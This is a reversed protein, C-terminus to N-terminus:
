EVKEPIQNERYPNTGEKLINNSQKTALAKMKQIAILDSALKNASPPWTLSQLIRCVLGSIFTLCAIRFYIPQAKCSAFMFHLGPAIGTYVM